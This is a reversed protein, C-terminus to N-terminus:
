DEERVQPINIPNLTSYHMAWYLAVALLSAVMAALVWLIPSLMLTRRKQQQLRRNCDAIAVMCGITVVVHAVFLVIAVLATGYFNGSFTTGFMVAM